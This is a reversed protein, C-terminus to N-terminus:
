RLPFSRPPRAALARVGATRAIALTADRSGGDAVIVEHGAARWPALADLTAAIGTAEDFAPVVISLRVTM